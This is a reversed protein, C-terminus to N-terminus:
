MLGNRTIGRNTPLGDKIRSKQPVQGADEQFDQLPRGSDPLYM